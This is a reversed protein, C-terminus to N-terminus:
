KFTDVHLLYSGNITINHGAGDSYTVKYKGRIGYTAITSTEYILNINEITNTNSVSDDIALSRNNKDWYYIMFDFNNVCDETTILDSSAEINIQSDSLGVDEFVSKDSFHAIGLHFSLKSNEIWVIVKTFDMSINDDNCDKSGQIGYALTSEKFTEGNITISMYDNGSDTNSDNGSCSIFIISVFLLLYIKKM